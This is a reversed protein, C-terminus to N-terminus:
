VTVGYAACVVREVNVVGAFDTLLGRALGDFCVDPIEVLRLLDVLEPRDAEIVGLASM